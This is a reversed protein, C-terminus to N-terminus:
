THRAQSRTRPPESLTFSIVASFLSVSSCDHFDPCHRACEPRLFLARGGPPCGGWAWRFPQVLAALTRAIPNRDFSNDHADIWSVGRPTTGGWQGAGDTAGGRRRRGAQLGRRRGRRRPAETV